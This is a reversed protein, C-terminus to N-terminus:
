YSRGLIYSVAQLQKEVMRILESADNRSSEIDNLETEDGDNRRYYKDLL